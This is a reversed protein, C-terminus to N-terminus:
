RDAAEACPQCCLSEGCLVSRVATFLHALVTEDDDDVVVVVVTLLKDRWELDSVSSHVGTVIENPSRVRWAM